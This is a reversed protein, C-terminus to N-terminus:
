LGVSSIAPVTFAVSPVARYDAHTPTGLLNAAVITADHASVPTLPPGKAASDGAAFVRENTTSQLKNTLTLRGQDVAVRAADLNLHDLDPSRGAAHVVLDAEFSQPEDGGRTSIELAQGTPAIATVETDTHIAIGLEAFRPLLLDVLDPDFYPLLRPGRQVVTVEAGARAALHSFEAAVYGGGIFLLRRPLADLGLFEDSTAVLEEGPINLPVPRAGTAILAHRFHLRTGDVEITEADVFRARGRFCEVGLEAFERERKAPIPDTFSRKCRQLDSWDIRLDGDVGRGRMHRFAAIAEEASVMMKKPDCGRLACTGGFPQYDIIATRWGRRAVRSVVGSAAVGTGIAVLDYPKSM